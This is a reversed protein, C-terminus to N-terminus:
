DPILSVAGDPALSTAGVDAVLSTAGDDIVLSTDSILLDLPAPPALADGWTNPGWTNPGWTGAGWVTGIPM